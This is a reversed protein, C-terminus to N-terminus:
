KRRLDKLDLGLKSVLVSNFHGGIPSDFDFTGSARRRFLFQICSTFYKFLVKRSFTEPNEGFLRAIMTWENSTFTEVSEGQKKKQNCTLLTDWYGEVDLSKKRSEKLFDFANTSATLSSFEEEGFTLGSSYCFFVPLRAKRNFLMWVVTLTEEGSAFGPETLDECWEFLFTSDQLLQRLKPSKRVSAKRRFRSYLEIRDLEARLLMPSVYPYKSLARILNTANNALPMQNNAFTIIQAICKWSADIKRDTYTKSLDAVSISWRRSIWLQWLNATEFRNKVGKSLYSCRVVTIGDIFALLPELLTLFTAINQAYMKTINENQEDTKEVLRKKDKHDYDGLENLDAKENRKLSSRLEEVTNRKRLRWKYTSSVM